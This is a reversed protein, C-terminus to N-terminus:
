KIQQPPQNLPIKLFNKQGLFFIIIKRSVYFFHNTPHFFHDENSM